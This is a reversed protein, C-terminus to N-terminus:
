HSMHRTYTMYKMYKMYKMYTASKSVQESRAHPPSPILLADSTKHISVFGTVTRQLPTRQLTIQHQCSIVQTNRIQSGKHVHTGEHAKTHGRKGGQCCYRVGEVSIPSLSVVVSRVRNGMKDSRIFVM